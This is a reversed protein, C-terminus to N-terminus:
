NMRELYAFSEQCGYCKYMSWPDSNTKKANVKHCKRCITTMMGDKGTYVVPRDTTTSITPTKKEEREHDEEWRKRKHRFNEFERYEVPRFNYSIKMEKRWELGGPGLMYATNDPISFYDLKSSGARFWLGRRRVWPRAAKQIAQIESAWYFKDTVDSYAYVLPNGSRALLLHEIDGKRIAAFAASGSMRNMTQIADQSLGQKDLVARIIDSDTECSRELKMDQFLYDANGIGGNHILATLGNYMPHNNENKLPNGVTAARTHLLVTKTTDKLNKNMFKRYEPTAVFNHAPTPAKLIFLEDPSDTNQLVVGTASLGRHQLSILLVEVEDASIPVEGWRQVGAIGCM